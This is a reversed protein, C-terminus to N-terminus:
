RDRHFSLKWLQQFTLALPELQVSQILSTIETNIEAEFKSFEEVINLREFLHRVSDVSESDTKGYAKALKAIDETAAADKSQTLKVFAACVPWTVKGNVIDQGVPKGTKAPDGVLDLMDDNAQFYLGILGVIKSFLVPDVRPQQPAEEESVAAAAAANGLQQDEAPTSFIEGRWPLLGLALELPAGITYKTTKHAVIRFYNEFSFRNKFQAIEEASALLPSTATSTSSTIPATEDPTAVEKKSEKDEESEEEDDESEDKDEKKAEPWSSSLDDDQGLETITAVQNLSSMLIGETASDLSLLSILLFAASKLLAADNLAVGVPIGTKYWCPQGRRTESCDYVDDAVLFYAQLIELSWGLACARAVLRSAEETEPVSSLPADSPPSTTTPTPANRPFKLFNQITSVVLRGRNAKGGATNYKLSHAFHQVRPERLGLSSAYNVLASHIHEWSTGFPDVANQLAKQLTELLPTSRGSSSASSSSSSSKTFSPINSLHFSFDSFLNVYDTM